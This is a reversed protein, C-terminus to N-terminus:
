LKRYKITSKEFLEVELVMENSSISIITFAVPIPFNGAVVTLQNGEKKWTGNVTSNDCKDFDTYTGNSKFEIWGEFDCADYYSSPTVEYMQWKGVINGSSGGGDGDKNCSAFGVCLALLLAWSWKNIVRKM